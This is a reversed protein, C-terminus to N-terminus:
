IFFANMETCVYQRDSEQIYFFEQPYFCSITSLVGSIEKVSIARSNLLIKSDEFNDVRVGLKVIKHFESAQVLMATGSPFHKVMEPACENALNSLVLIM